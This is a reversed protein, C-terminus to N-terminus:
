MKMCEYNQLFFAAYPTWTSKVDFKLSLLIVSFVLRHFHLVELAVRALISWPLADQSRDKRTWIIESLHDLECDLTM